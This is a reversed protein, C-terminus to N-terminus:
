PRQPVFFLPPIRTVYLLYLTNFFLMLSVLRRIARRPDADGALAVPLLISVFIISFLILTGM